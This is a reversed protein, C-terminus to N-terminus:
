HLKKMWLVMKIKGNCSQDLGVIFSTVPNNWLQHRQHQALLGMARHHSM